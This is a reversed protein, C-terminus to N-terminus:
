GSIRARAWARPRPRWRKWRSAMWAAPIILRPWTARPRPAIRCRKMARTRNASTRSSQRGRGKDVEVATGEARHRQLDAPRVRPSFTWPSRHLFVAHGELAEEKVDLVTITELKEQQVAEHYAEPILREKVETSSKRASVAAFSSAPPRAPGSDPCRPWSPMPRCSRTSPERSTIRRFRSTCKGAARDQPKLAFM